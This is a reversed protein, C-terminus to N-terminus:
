EERQRRKAQHHAIWHDDHKTDAFYKSFGDDDQSPPAPVPEQGKLGIKAQTGDVNMIRSQQLLKLDAKQCAREMGINISEKWRQGDFTEIIAVGAGMRTDGINPKGHGRYTFPSQQQQVQEHVLM